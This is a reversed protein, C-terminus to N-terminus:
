INQHSLEGTEPMEHRFSCEAGRKCQGITYFSCIKPRNKEYSPTRRQLKLITDNPQM